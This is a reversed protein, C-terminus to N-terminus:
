RGLAALPGGRRAVDRLRDLSLSVQLDGYAYPAATYPPFHIVLASDSFTFYQFMTNDPVGDWGFADSQRKLDALTLRALLAHYSSGPAFLDALAIETAFNMDVNVVRREPLPHAGGAAVTITVYSSAVRGGVIATAFSFDSKGSGYERMVSVVLRRVLSNFLEVGPHFTASRIQPFAGADGLSRDVVKTGASLPAPALNGINQLTAIRERYIAALCAANQCRFQFLTLWAAQDDKLQKATLLGPAASALAAKYAAAMEDDAASLRPDACITREAFTRAKACEFSAARTAPAAALTLLVALALKSLRRTRPM